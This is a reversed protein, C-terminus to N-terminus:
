ILSQNLSLYCNEGQWVGNNTFVALPMFFEVKPYNVTARFFVFNTYAKSTQQVFSSSYGLTHLSLSKGVKAETCSLLCCTKRDTSSSLKVTKVTKYLESTPMLAFYFNFSRNVRFPLQVGVERNFATLGCVM